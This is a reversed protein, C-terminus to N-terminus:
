TMRGAPALVTALAPRSRHIDATARHGRVRRDAFARDGCGHWRSCSTPLARISWALHAYVVGGAPGIPFGVWQLRRPVRQHRTVDALLGHQGAALGLLCGAPIDSM